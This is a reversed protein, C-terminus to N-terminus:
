SHGPISIRPLEYGSDQIRSESFHDMARRAPGGAFVHFHLLNDSPRLRRSIAGGLLSRIKVSTIMARAPGALHVSADLTKHRPRSGLKLLKKKEKANSSLERYL